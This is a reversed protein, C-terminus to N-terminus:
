PAMKLALYIEGEGHREPIPGQDIRRDLTHAIRRDVVQRASWNQDYLVLAVEGLLNAEFQLRSAMRYLKGLCDVFPQTRRARTRRNQDDIAHQM